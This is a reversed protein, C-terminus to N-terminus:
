FPIDEDTLPPPEYDPGTNTHPTHVAGDVQDRKNRQLYGALFEQLSKDLAVAAADNEPSVDIAKLVPVRYVIRGKKGETFGNIRVTRM